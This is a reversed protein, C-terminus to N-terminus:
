RFLTISGKEQFSYGDVGQAQMNYFYVGEPLKQGNYSRGDWYGDMGSWHYVKQGWRNFIEVDIGKLMWDDFHFVDNINDSNPSFSNFIDYGEVDVIVSTTDNCLASLNSNQAILQVKYEGQQVFTHIVEDYLEKNETIGDSFDWIFADAGSSLNMFTTTFEERGLVAGVEFSAVIEQPQNMSIQTDIECAHYDSIHLILDSAYLDYISLLIAQMANGQDLVTSGDLLQYQYPSTGSYITLDIVGDDSQYCSLDHVNTQAIIKGPEGLKVGLLTDSNCANEDVAWLAYDSAMLNSYVASNATIVGNVTDSIFYNMYPVTGGCATVTIEGESGEYCKNNEINIVELYFHAPQTITITDIFPGCFFSDTVGVLYVGAGLNNAFNGNAVTDNILNMWSITYAGSEFPIGGIIQISAGGDESGFCSTNNIVLDSSQLPDTLHELIITDSISCGKSDTLQIMHPVASLNAIAATTYFTPIWLYSFGGLEGSASISIFGDNGGYCSIHRVSDVSIILEDYEALSIKTSDTCGFTDYVVISYPLAILNTFINTLSQTIGNDISYQYPSFGQAIDIQIIGTAAGYCMPSNGLLVSDLLLPNAANLAAVVTMNITGWSPSAVCGNTDSVSITITDYTLSTMTDGYGFGSVGSNGIWSYNYSASGGTIELFIQGDYTVGMCTESIKGSEIIKFLLTDPQTTLSSDIAVCAVSDTIIVTYNNPSLSDTTQMDDGNSWLYSYAGMGGHSFVTIVGDDYGFCTSNKVVFSDIYLSSDLVLITDRVVCANADSVQVEYEGPCIGFFTSDVDIPGFPINTYVENIYYQYPPIGGSTLGDLAISGNCLGNNMCYVASSTPENYVILAPEDIYRVASSDICTGSKSTAVVGYYGKILENFYSGTDIAVQPNFLTYRWLVYDYCSDPYYVKFTGNTDGHCVIDTAQTMMNINPVSDVGVYVEVSDVCANTDEIHVLYDGRYLGVFEASDQWSFLTDISYKIIITPNDAFVIIQGDDGCCSENIISVSNIIPNPTVEIILSSDAICFSDKVIVVYNGAILSDILTDLVGQITDFSFGGDISYLYEWDVNLASIHLSGDEGRCTEPSVIVTLQISDICPPIIRVSDCIEDTICGNADTVTVCYEEPGCLGTAPNGIQTALTSQNTWLYTYPPIGGFVNSQISGDCAILTSAGTVVISINILNPENITIDPIISDTCGVNDTIKIRYTGTPISDFVFSTDSSSSTFIGSGNLFEISYTFPSIGFIGDVSIIGLSDGYCSIDIPNFNTFGCSQIMGVVIVFIDSTCVANDTIILDYIGASLNYINQNISAFGNPGVWDYTYGPVGGSVNLVISGDNTFPTSANTIIQNVTFPLPQSVTYDIYGIISPDTPSLLESIPISPNTSPPTPPFAAYFAASDVMLMRYNTAMMGTFPQANFTGVGSSGHSFLFTPSVYRYNMLKVPTAPSTQSVYATVTAFDGYCLIPTTTTVSDLTQAKLSSVSFAFFLISTFLIIKKM